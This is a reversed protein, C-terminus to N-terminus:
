SFICIIEAKQYHPNILLGEKRSRTILIENALREAKTKDDTNLIMYWLQYKKVEKIEKYGFNKWLIPALDKTGEIDSIRAIIGIGERINFAKSIDENENLMLIYEKNPNFFLTTKETAEKILESANGERLAITLEFLISSELHNLLEKYGMIDTLTQKATIAVLDPLRSKVIILFKMDAVTHNYYYCLYTEM